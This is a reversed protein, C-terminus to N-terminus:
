KDAIVMSLLVCVCWLCHSLNFIHQQIYHCGGCLDACVLSRFLGQYEYGCLHLEKYIDQSSLELVEDKVLQKPTALTMMEHSVDTPVRVLGSVILASDETVEFKGSAKQVSVTFQL